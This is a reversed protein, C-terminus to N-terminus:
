GDDSSQSSFFHQPGQNPFSLFCIFCFLRFYTVLNLQMSLRLLNSLVMHGRRGTGGHSCHDPATWPQVSLQMLVTTPTSGMLPRFVSAGTPTSHCHIILISPLRGVLTPEHHLGMIITCHCSILCFSKPQKIIYSRYKVQLTTRQSGDLKTRVEIHPHEKFMLKSSKSLFHNPARQTTTNAKPKARARTRFEQNPPRM